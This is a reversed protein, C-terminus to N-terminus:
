FVSWSSITGYYAYVFVEHLTVGMLNPLLDGTVAVPDHQCTLSPPVSGLDSQALVPSSPAQLVGLLALTVGLGLAGTVLLRRHKYKM